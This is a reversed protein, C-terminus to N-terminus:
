YVKKFSLSFLHISWKWFTSWHKGIQTMSWTFVYWIMFYLLVPGHIGDATFSFSAFPRNHNFTSEAWHPFCRNPFVPLSWKAKLSTSSLYLKVCGSLSLSLKIYSLPSPTGVQLFSLIQTPISPHLPFPSFGDICSLRSSVAQQPSLCGLQRSELYWCEMSNSKQIRQEGM